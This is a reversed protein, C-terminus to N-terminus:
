SPSAYRTLVLVAAAFVVTSLAYSYSALFSPLGAAGAGVGAGGVVSLAGAVIPWTCGVCSVLGVAAGVLSTATDTLAVFVLYSLAAYGVLQFPVIRLYVFDGSYALIPGWGPSAGSVTFATGPSAATGVLGGLYLLAVFYVGSVIAIAPAYWPLEDSTPAGVRVVAWAGLTVWVVPFLAHRFSLATSDTLVFYAAVAAVQAAVFATWVALSRQKEKM